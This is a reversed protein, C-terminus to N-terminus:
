AGCEAVLSNVVLRVKVIPEMEQTDRTVPVDSPVWVTLACPMLMALVPLVNM